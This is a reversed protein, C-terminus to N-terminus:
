GAIHRPARNSATRCPSYRRGTRSDGEDMGQILLV